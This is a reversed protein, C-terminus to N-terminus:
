SLFVSACNNRWRRNIEDLSAIYAEASEAKKLIYCYAEYWGPFDPEYITRMHWDLVLLSHNARCTRIMTDITNERIAKDKISLLACDMITIPIELIDLSEGTEFDFGFFPFDLGSTYGPIIDSGASSSYGFSAASKWFDPFTCDLYHPRLGDIATQFIQSLKNQYDELSEKNSWTGIGNHLAIKYRCNKCKSLIKYVDKFKYTPDKASQRDGAYIFLTSNMDIDLWRDIMRYPNPKHSFTSKISDALGTISGKLGGHIEDSYVSKALIVFSSLIKRKFIDIDHSLGVAFDANDPWPSVRKFDAPIINSRKLVDLFYVIYSEFFPYIFYINTKIRDPTWIPNRHNELGTVLYNYMISFIDINISSKNLLIADDPIFGPLVLRSKNNRLQWDRLNIEYEITPIYLSCNAATNGYGIDANDESIRFKLGTISAILNLIYITKKRTKIPCQMNVTIETM